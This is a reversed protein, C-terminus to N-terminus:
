EKCTRYLTKKHHPMECCFSKTYETGSLASCVWLIITGGCQRVTFVIHGSKTSKEKEIGKNFYDFPCLSFPSSTYDPAHPWSNFGPPSSRTGAETRPVGVRDEVGAVSRSAENQCTHVFSTGQIGLTNFKLRGQQVPWRNMVLGVHLWDVCVCVSM